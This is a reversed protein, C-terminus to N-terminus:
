QPKIGILKVLKGFKETEAAILKEFAARPMASPVHGSDIIRAQVGPESLITTIEKELRGVVESRTNRPVGIGFWSTLEYGPLFEGVAPIDPLGQMRTATTVALARLQGSAVYGRAAGLGAFQMQVKGAILDKIAPGDGPYPVHILDVRATMTFLGAALVITAAAPLGMAVKGPNAKAYAILEPVTRPPFSPNTVIALPVRVLGAVPAIDRMFNFNLKDNLTADIANAAHALLLTYGDAPARVVAEAAASPGARNELNVPQGLRESLREGILRATRHIEGAPGFGLILTVAQSPYTQAAASGVLLLVPL